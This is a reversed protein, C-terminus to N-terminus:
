PCSACTLNVV